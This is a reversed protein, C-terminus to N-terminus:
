SHRSVVVSNCVHVRMCVSVVCLRVASMSGMAHMTYARLLYRRVYSTSCFFIFYLSM